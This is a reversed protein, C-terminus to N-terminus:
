APDPITLPASWPDLNEDQVIQFIRTIGFNYDSVATANTPDLELERSAVQLATLCDALAVLGKAPEEHMAKTMGQEASALSGTGPAGTLYAPVHWVEAYPSACGALILTSGLFCLHARM